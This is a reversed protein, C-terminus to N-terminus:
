MRGRKRLQALLVHMKVDVPDQWHMLTELPHPAEEQVKPDTRSVM